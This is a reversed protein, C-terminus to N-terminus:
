RGASSCNARVSGGAAGLYQKTAEPTRKAYHFVGTATVTPAGDSQIARSSHKRSVADASAMMSPHVASFLPEVSELDHCPRSGAREFSVIMFEGTGLAEREIEVRETRGGIVNCAGSNDLLLDAKIGPILCRKRDTLM